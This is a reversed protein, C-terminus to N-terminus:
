TPALTPVVTRLIGGRGNATAMGSFTMVSPSSTSNSGSWTASRTPPRTRHGRSTPRSRHSRWFSSIPDGNVDAMAVWSTLNLGATRDGEVPTVAAVQDDRIGLRRRAGPARRPSRTPQTSPGM